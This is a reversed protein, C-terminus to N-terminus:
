QCTEKPRGRRKVIPTKTEYIQKVPINDKLRQVHGWWSLQRQEIFETIPQIELEERIRENRIKDMRTVGKVRRLYKMEAAQITSKQRKSLVWSESGYTLIPRYITKYVKMKTNRSIEKKNIFGKNLAFYVNNTKKVREAIEIENRGSEEIAIGLYNFVQVQEIKVGEVQINMQTKEKTVAMVKTKDKNLKMGNRELADNWIILNDQLTRENNAMLVVDDAFACERIEVEKLKRYGVRFPKTKRRTEKIIDDMYIIFLLPSLSGGQRVGENTNFMESKMNQYIVCNETNEYLNRVAEILQYNVKRNQLSNWIKARPVRDFAKELDLFAMYLTKNASMAKGIINKITFIHDQTSRGKRFGSQTEELTPEIIKRLKQELIQEYIKLVAPLLTIGRYNNCEKKDGKKHIPVIMGITWDKPLKNGQQLILNLLKVLVQAGWDGMHKLMEGSIKDWGAAKCNKIKKITEIIEGKTIYIKIYREVRHSKKSTTNLQPNLLMEFYNKWRDMIQNEETLLDGHENTITVADTNDKKRLNKLVRYFLKQNGKSDKELKDGFEKWTRQKSTPTLVQQVHPLVVAAAVTPPRWESGLADTQRDLFAVALM